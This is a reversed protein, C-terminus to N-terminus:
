ETRRASPAAANRALAALLKEALTEGFGPIKEAIEEPTARRLDRISGFARLLQRKRVAGIGPIEDLQSQEILRNRLERHYTIAFRHAEDRLAQLMRLAPDHRDLVVPESRGPLFIEENRKALGIVPLPPCGIEILADIASSLQGKGGDVMVLDPLPRKEELLRGFHRVLVEHMMAFDDSQHVTRIRFRRYNKGPSKEM